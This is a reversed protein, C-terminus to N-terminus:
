PSHKVSVHVNSGALGYLLFYGEGGGPTSVSEADGLGAGIQSFSSDYLKWATAGLTEVSADAPVRRWEALGEPGIALDAAGVPLLALSEVPRYLSSGLRLWEEEGKPLVVIDFLDRGMLQPILIFFHAEFDRGATGDLSVAPKGVMIGDPGQVAVYGSLEEIALLTARPDKTPAIYEDDADFNVPLWVKGAREQWVASLARAPDVRQAFMMPSYYHGAGSVMDLIIYARGEAESWRIEIGPISESVFRGGDRPEFGGMMDVWEGQAFNRLYLTGNEAFGAQLVMSSNVYIGEIAQHSAESLAIKATKAAAVPEPMASIRGKELLARLLIREAVNTSQSSGIGSAGTVAVSLREDPAVILASGYSVVDGGKQWARVGVAALGEESVTDWGLGFRWSDSPVPNFTGSTQDEAMAAVAGPSLIRTTGFAGGNMLMSGLRVLDSPTSYLGGSALAGVFEQALLHDGRYPKAFTGDAFPEIPYASHRMGLPELIEKQVFDAYDEGTVAK